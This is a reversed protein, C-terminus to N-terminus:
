GLIANAALLPVVLALDHVRDHPVDGLLGLRRDLIGVLGYPPREVLFVAM